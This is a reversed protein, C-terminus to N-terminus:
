GLLGPLLLQNRASDLPFTEGRQTEEEPSSGLFASQGAWDELHGEVTASSSFLLDHGWIVELTRPTAAFPAPLPPLWM